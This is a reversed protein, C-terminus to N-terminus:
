AFRHSLAAVRGCGRKIHRLAGLCSFYPSSHGLDRRIEVTGSVVLEGSRDFHQRMEIRVVPLVSPRAERGTMSTRAPRKALPRAM